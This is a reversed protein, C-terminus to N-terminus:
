WDVMFWIMFLSAIQELPLLFTEFKQEIM